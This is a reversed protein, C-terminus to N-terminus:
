FDFFFCYFCIALTRHQLFVCFFKVKCLIENIKDGDGDDGDGDDIVGISFLMRPLKPGVKGEQPSSFGGGGERLM